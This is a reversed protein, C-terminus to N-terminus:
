DGIWYDFDLYITAILKGNRYKFFAGSLIESEETSNSFDTMVFKGSFSYSIGKVAATKFDFQSGFLKPKMIKFSGAKTVVYGNINKASTGNLSLHQFDKFEKLDATKDGKINKPLYFGELKVPQLQSFGICVAFCTVLIVSITTKMIKM